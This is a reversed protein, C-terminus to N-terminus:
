DLGVSFAKGAEAGTLKYTLPKLEFTGAKEAVLLNSGTHPCELTHETAETESGPLTCLQEGTVKYTGNLVGCNSIILAVFETGAPKFNVDFVSSEELVLGELPKVEIPQKVTCAEHPPLITCETFVLTAVLVNVDGLAPATQDLTGTTVVHSCQIHLPISAVELLSSEAGLLTGEFGYSGAAARNGGICLTTEAGEHPCAEASASASAVATVAFVALMAAFLLRM